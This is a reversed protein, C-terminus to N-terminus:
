PVPAFASREIGGQRWIFQVGSGEFEVSPQIAEGGFSIAWASLLPAAGQQSLRFVSNPEAVHFRPSYEGPEERWEGASAPEWHVRRGSIEAAAGRGERRWAIEPAWHVYEHFSRGRGGRVLHCSFWPGGAALFWIRDVRVGKRRYADHSARVWVGGHSRGASRSIIHGRRGMRFDSWVDALECDDLQLVSHASSRRYKLREPGSYQFVGSDVIARRGFVSVECGLLDAHSHAPLEDPGMDGADFLLLGGDSARHVFYDGVWGSFPQVESKEFADGDLTADGFLPIGGDPHRTADVFTSMLDATERYRAASDPAVHNLRGALDHLGHALDVQYMASREYHEGSPLVQKRICADLCAVGQALWREAEGDKFYAGAAALSKANEWLHNGGLDYEFRRSLFRAQNCLSALLRDRLRVPPAAGELLRLWVPLRRSICYPHWAIASASNRERRGCANLWSELTRWVVDPRPGAFPLLYEHYQLHFAALKPIATREMRWDIPWGLDFHRNLFTFRGRWLDHVEINAAGPPPGAPSHNTPTHRPLLTAGGDRDVTPLAGRVRNIARHALQAPRHYRLIQLWRDATQLLRSDFAAVSM